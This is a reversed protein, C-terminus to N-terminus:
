AAGTDGIYDSDSDSADPLLNGGLLSKRLAQIGSGFKRSTGSNGKSMRSSRTPATGAEYNETGSYSSVAATTPSLRAPPPADSHDACGATKRGRLGGEFLGVLYATILCALLVVLFYIAITKLLLMVDRADELNIIGSSSSTALPLTATVSATTTTTPGYIAACNADCYELVFREEPCREGEGAAQRTVQHTQLTRCLVCQSKPSLTSACNTSSGTPESGQERWTASSGQVDKQRPAFSNLIRSESSPISCMGSGTCPEVEYPLCPRGGKKPPSTVSFQRMRTCTSDCISWDGWEGQCDLAELSSPNQPATECDKDGDFFGGGTCPLSPTSQLRVELINVAWAGATATTLPTAQLQLTRVRKLSLYRTVWPYTVDTMELPPASITTSIRSLWNAETDQISLVLSVNSRHLYIEVAELDVPEALHLEITDMSSGMKILSSLNKDLLKSADITRDGAVLVAGDRWDPCDGGECHILRFANSEWPCGGGNNKSRFHQQQLCSSPCTATTASWQGQCDEEDKNASLLVARSTTFPKWEPLLTSPGVSPSSDEKVSGLWLATSESLRLLPHGYIRGFLAGGQVGAVTATATPVRISLSSLDVIAAMAEENLHDAVTVLATQLSLSVADPDMLRHELVPGLLSVPSKLTDDHGEWVAAKLTASVATLGEVESAKWSAERWILVWSGGDIPLLRGGTDKNYSLSEDLPTVGQAETQYRSSSDVVLFGNISIGLNPLKTSVCLSAWHGTGPHMSASTYLCSECEGGQLQNDELEGSSNLLVTECKPSVVVKGTKLEWRERVLTVAYQKKVNGGTGSVDGGVIATRQEQGHPILVNYATERIWQLEGLGNFEAVFLSGYRVGFSIKCGDESNCRCTEQQTRCNASWLLLLVKDIVGNVEEAWMGVGRVEPLDTSSLLQIESRNWDNSPDIEFQSTM